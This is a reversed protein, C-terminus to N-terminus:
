LPTQLLHANQPPPTQHTFCIINFIDWTNILSYLLIFVLPCREPESLHHKSGIITVNKSPRVFQENKSVMM